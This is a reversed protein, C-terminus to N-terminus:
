SKEAHSVLGHLRHSRVSLFPRTVETAKALHEPGTPAPPLEHGRTRRILMPRLKLVNSPFILTSCFRLGKPTVSSAPWPPAHRNQEKVWQPLSGELLSELRGPFRQAHCLAVAPLLCRQSGSQRLYRPGATGQAM